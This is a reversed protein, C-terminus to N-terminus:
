RNLENLYKHYIKLKYDYQYDKPHTIDCLKYNLWAFFLRLKKM